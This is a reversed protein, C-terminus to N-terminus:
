FNGESDIPKRITKYISNQSQSSALKYAEESPSPSPSDDSHGSSLINDSLHGNSLSHPMSSMALDLNSLQRTQSADSHSPPQNQDCILGSGNSLNGNSVGNM